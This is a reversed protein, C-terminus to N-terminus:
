YVYFLFKNGEKNIVFCNALNAIFSSSQAVNNGGPLYSERKRKQGAIDLPLLTKNEESIIEFVNLFVNKFIEEAFKDVIMYYAVTSSNEIGPIEFPVKRPHTLEKGIFLDNYMERLFSRWGMRIYDKEMKKSGDYNHIVKEKPTQFKKSVEEAAIKVNHARKVSAKEKRTKPPCLASVVKAVQNKLAASEKKEVMCRFVKRLFSLDNPDPKENLVTDLPYQV